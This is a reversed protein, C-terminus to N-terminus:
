PKLRVPRAKKPSKDNRAKQLLEQMNLSNSLKGFDGSGNVSNYLSAGQPPEFRFTEYDFRPAYNIRNECTLRTKMPVGPPALPHPDEFGPAVPIGANGSQDATQPPPLPRAAYDDLPDRVPPAMERVAPTSEVVLRHLLLDDRGIYFRLEQTQQESVSRLVVVEVPLGYIDQVGECKAADFQNEVDGFPNMGILMMMELTTNNLALKQFDRLNKPAKEKTYWNKRPITLGSYRATASRRQPEPLSRGEATETTELRLHNPTDVLLRVTRGLPKDVPTHPLTGAYAGDAPGDVTKHGDASSVAGAGPAKSKPKPILPTQLAYFVTQQDLETVHAYADAMQKLLLLARPDYAAKRAARLEALTQASAPVSVCAATGAFALAPLAFRLASRRMRKSIQLKM